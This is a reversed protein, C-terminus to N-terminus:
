YIQIWNIRISHGYLQFTPEEKDWEKEWVGGHSLSYDRDRIFDELEQDYKDKEMKYILYNSIDYDSIFLVYLPAYYETKIPPIKPCGAVFVPIDRRVTKEGLCFYAQRTLGSKIYQEDNISLSTEVDTDMIYYFINKKTVLKPCDGVKMLTGDSTIFKTNESIVKANESPRSSFERNIDLLSDKIDNAYKLYTERIEKLREDSLIQDHLNPKTFDPILGM